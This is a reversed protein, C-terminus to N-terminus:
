GLWIEGGGPTDCHTFGACNTGRPHYHVVGLMPMGSVARAHEVAPLKNQSDIVQTWILSLAALELLKGALLDNNDPSSSLTHVDALSKAITRVRADVSTEADFIRPDRLALRMAKAQVAVLTLADLEPLNDVNIVM